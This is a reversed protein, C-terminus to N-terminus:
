FLRAGDPVSRDPSFLVVEGNEGPFGVTLLESNFNGIQRPRFNVV